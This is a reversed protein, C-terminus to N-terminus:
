LIQEPWFKGEMQVAENLSLSSEEPSKTKAKAKNGLSKEMPQRGQRLEWYGPVIDELYSSLHSRLFIVSVVKIKM